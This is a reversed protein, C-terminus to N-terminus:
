YNMEEKSLTLSFYAIVREQTDQIQSLVAGTGVASADTDLIFVLTFDPYALIPAETLTEKLREFAMQCKPSWIFTAYKSVIVNLPRALEAYGPVFRRYYSCTGLFARLDTPHQPVPWTCVAEVKAPDTSIGDGSVIHGLYSVEKAFLHCKKAKLKLNAEGFRLM